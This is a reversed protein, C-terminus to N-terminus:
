PADKASRPRYGLLYDGKGKGKRFSQFGALILAEQRARANTWGQYEMRYIAAFVGTRGVGHTCHILVPYSGSDDMLKLYAQVVSASPVQRAPLHLHNVGDPALAAAEAGAKDTQKRFDVVTRIGYKTCVRRLREHTMEASRYLHGKHVAYFRGTAIWRWWYLGVSVVVVVLAWTLVRRWTRRQPGGPPLTQQEDALKPECEPM